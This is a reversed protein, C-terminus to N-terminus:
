TARPSAPSHPDGTVLAAADPSFLHQHYRHGPNARLADRSCPGILM